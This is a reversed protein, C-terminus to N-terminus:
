DIIFIKCKIKRTGRLTFMKTKRIVKSREGHKKLLAVAMRYENENHHDRWIDVSYLLRIDPYSELIEDSFHGKAVGLEVVVAGPKLLSFIGIRNEFM